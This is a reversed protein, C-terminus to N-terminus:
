IRSTAIERITKLTVDADDVKVQNKSLTSIATERFLKVDINNEVLWTPTIFGGNLLVDGSDTLQFDFYKKVKKYSITPTLGEIYFGNEIGEFTLCLSAACSITIIIILMAFLVGSPTPKNSIGAFSAIMIAGIGSTIALMTTVVVPYLYVPKKEFYPYKFSIM